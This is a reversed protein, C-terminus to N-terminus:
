MQASLRTRSFTAAGSITCVMEPAAKSREAFNTQNAFKPGTLHSKSGVRGGNSMVSQNQMQSAVHSVTDETRNLLHRAADQGGIGFALSFALAAGGVIATFLINM